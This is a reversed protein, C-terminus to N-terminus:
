TARVEAGEDESDPSTESSSEAEWSSEMPSAEVDERVVEDLPGAEPCEVGKGPMSAMTSM